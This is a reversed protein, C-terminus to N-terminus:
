VPVEKRSAVVAGAIVLGIGAVSLPYVSEDLFVAGLILAVVPVVYIAFSGRTSGVRGVLRGMLVFALGTGLMGLALVALFSGWAFSSRPLSWLGLPATWLTGLALMRAMVPLSGYRQTIPTAINVAVAYCGVAAVVMLLGIAESSGAGLAPLAIAAVGLFGVALGTLQIRGPMRRLMLAAVAAAFIPLCGNVLGVMGSSIRQEAFPFLTMPVAVWLFSIALIRPHDPREIPRRAGPVLWLVGAGFAVRLWTVLGPEFGRLGIAIFLFSSGWITGISIFLAWDLPTFAGTHTGASTSLVSRSAPPEGSTPPATTM